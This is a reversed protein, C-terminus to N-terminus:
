FFMTDIIQEMLWIKGIVVLLLVRIMRELEEYNAIKLFELM